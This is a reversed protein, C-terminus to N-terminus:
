LRRKEYLDHSTFISNTMILGAMFSLVTISRFDTLGSFGGIGLVFFFVILDRYLDGYKYKKIIALMFLFYSYYFIVGIIGLYILLNFQTNEIGAIYGRKSKLHPNYIMVKKSERPHIFGFGTLLKNESILHKLPAVAQAVRGTGFKFVNQGKLVETFQSVIDHTRLNVQPYNTEIAFLLLFTSVFIFFFKLKGTLKSRVLLIALIAVWLSRTLCSLIAMVFIWKQGSRISRFNLFLLSFIIFYFPRPWIRMNFGLQVPNGAIADKWTTELQNVYDPILLAENLLFTQILVFVALMLGYYYSKEFFVQMSFSKEKRFIYIPLVFCLLLMIQRYQRFQIIFPEEHFVLYVLLVILFIITLFKVQRYLTNNQITKQDALLILVPCLIVFIDYTKIHIFFDKEGQSFLGFAVIFMLLQVAFDYKNIQYSYLMIGITLMQGLLLPVQLGVMSLSLLFLVPLKFKSLSIEYRERDNSLM